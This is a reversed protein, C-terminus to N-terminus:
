NEAASFGNEHVVVMRDPRTVLEGWIEYALQHSRERENEVTNVWNPDNVATWLLRIANHLIALDRTSVASLNIPNDMENEKTKVVLPSFCLDEALNWVISTQSQRHKKEHDRIMDVKTKLDEVKELEKKIFDISMGVEKTSSYLKVLDVRLSDLATSVITLEEETLM